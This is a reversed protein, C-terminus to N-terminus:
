LEEGGPTEDCFRCAMVEKMPETSYPGTELVYCSKNTEQLEESAIAAEAEGAKASDSVETPNPPPFLLARAILLVTVESSALTEGQAKRVPTDEM